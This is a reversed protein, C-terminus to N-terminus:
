RTLRFRLAAGFDDQMTEIHGPERRLFANLDLWGGGLRVGYALEYDIERGTPALNFFRRATRATGTSYDYTVPLDLAFGGRAVRLPQMLRFSLSDGPAFMGRRALDVAFADTQLRGDRVLAGQGPVSTWGRRYSAFASWGRGLDLSAAGDVFATTTGGISFAPSFRAGLLTAEETLRSAGLSLRARGLRRDLTVTGLAYGPLEVTPRFGPNYAKGREGTVTLAVPGLDQRVGISANADPHFGARSMPDRAVLFGAEWAGALQQQLTRGSHSFGFAATTKPTLRSIVTGAIARARRRDDPDLLTQAIGVTPAGALDNRVTLTVSIPGAAAAATRYTGRGGIAERLPQEQPMRRLTRALDLAYARSYGDLIVAGDGPKASADGMPGSTIGNDTISVAMGTGALTTTGQPQFARGINLIGRGFIADTGPVGADDATKLLLDVIQAGTLNPFAGAVLAAAGVITPASFSTGNPTVHQGFQNVTANGRGLAALYYQAGVGSGARNSFSSINGGVDIAGAIIFLGSAGHDQINKVAFSNPDAIGSNGASMVIVIGANVARQIAGFIDPTMGEEDGFSMNIIKAGNTRALDIATPLASDLFCDNGPKCGAPDGVNLSLITAEYAVGQMYLGDRNAAIVGSVMSGHGQQDTIGRSAAVDQSAPDIRGAFEPLTPNIGTDVVAVKM